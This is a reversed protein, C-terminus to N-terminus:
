PRWLQERKSTSMPARPTPSRRGAPALQAALPLSVTYEDNEAVLDLSFSVTIADFLAQYDSITQPSGDCFLWGVPPTGIISATPKIDGPSVPAVWTGPSTGDGDVCIWIAGALSDVALDGQFFDGDDAPRGDDFRRKDDCRCSATRYPAGTSGGVSLLGVDLEGDSGSGGSGDTFLTATYAKWYWNGSSDQFAVYYDQNSAAPLIFAGLQGYGSNTTASGDYSVAPSITSPDTGVGPVAGGFGAQYAPYSYATAPEDDPPPTGDITFVDSISYTAM